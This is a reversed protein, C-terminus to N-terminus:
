GGEAQWTLWGLLTTSTVTIWSGILCTLDLLLWAIPHLSCYQFLFHWLPFFFHSQGFLPFFSELYCLFRLTEPQLIALQQHQDTSFISPLLHLCTVKNKSSPVTRQTHTRPGASCPRCTQGLVEQTCTGEGGWKSWGVAQGEEAETEEEIIHPNYCYENLLAIMFTSKIVWLLHVALHRNRLQQM